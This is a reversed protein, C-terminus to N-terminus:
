KKCGCLQVTRNERRSQEAAFVVSHSRLSEQANAVIQSDDRSFLADVFTDVIRQDGGGHGGTERGLQITTTNGDAFTKVTISQEDFYLEGLTGHVRLYRANDRTFGTMTFVATVDGEFLM